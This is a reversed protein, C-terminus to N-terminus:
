SLLDEGHLFLREDFGIRVQRDRGSVLLSENGVDGTRCGYLGPCGNFGNGTQKGGWPRLLGDLLGSM